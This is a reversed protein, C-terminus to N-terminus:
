PTRAQITPIIKRAILDEMVAAVCDEKALKIDSPRAGGDVKAGGKLFGFMSKDPYTALLLNVQCSVTGDSVSLETLTGDVHFGTVNKAALQRGSPEKGGPWSLAMAAANRRFTREVTTRMLARLEDGGRATSSMPGVNVYVGGSAAPGEDGGPGAARIADFAKQAQKRVFADSDGSAARKLAALAAERAPAATSATVQRGLAAAAVGRVTRDRDRLAAVFAPVARPDQVKALNLAASLRVKYDSAGRLQDIFNDIKDARAVRTLTLAAILLAVAIYALQRYLRM